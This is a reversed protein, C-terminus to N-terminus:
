KLTYVSFAILIVGLRCKGQKFEVEYQQTLTELSIKIRLFDCNRLKLSFTNGEPHCLNVQNSLVAFVSAIVAM